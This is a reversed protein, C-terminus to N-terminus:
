DARRHAVFVPVDANHMVYQSVSGLMAGVRGVGRAGLLIADYNSEKSTAIVQPGAHGRKVIKTVPIDDPILDVAETLTREAHKDAESQDAPIMLTPWSVRTVEAVVNPAVCVLTITANDRRAATVAASLALEASASGDVAVLLRHFHLEALKPM